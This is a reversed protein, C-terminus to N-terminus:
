PVPVPAVVPLSGVAGRTGGNGPKDVLPAGDHGRYHRIAAKVPSSFPGAAGSAARYLASGRGPVGVVDPGGLPVPDHTPGIVLDMAGRGNWDYAGLFWSAGLARVSSAYAGLSGPVEVRRVASGRGCRVELRAGGRVPSVWTIVRGDSPVAYWGDADPATNGGYSVEETVSWKADDGGDSAGGGWTYTGDDAQLTVSYAGVPGRTSLAPGGDRAAESAMAVPKGDASRVMCSVDAAASTQTRTVPSLDSVVPAGGWLRALLFAVIGVLLIGAAVTLVRRAMSGDRVAMIGGGLFFLGTIMHGGDVACSTFIGQVSRCAPPIRIIWLVTNDYYRM